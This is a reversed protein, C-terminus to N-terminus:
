DTRFRRRTLGVRFRAQFVAVPVPQLDNILKRDTSLSLLGRSQEAAPEVNVLRVRRPPPSERFRVAAWCTATTLRRIPFFRPSVRKDLLEAAM